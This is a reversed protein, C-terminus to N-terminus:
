FLGARDNVCKLSIVITNVHTPASKLGMSSVAHSGPRAACRQCRSMRSSPRYSPGMSLVIAFVVALPVRGRAQEGNERKSSGEEAMELRSRLHPRAGTDRCPEHGLIAAAKEAEKPTRRSRRRKGVACDMALRAGRAVV